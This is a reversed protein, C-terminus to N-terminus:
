RFLRLNPQSTSLSGPSFAKVPPFSEQQLFGPVSYVSTLLSAALTDFAELNHRLAHYKLQENTFIVQVLSAQMAHAEQAGEELEKLCASYEGKM